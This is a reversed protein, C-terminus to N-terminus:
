AGGGAGATGGNGRAAFYLGLLLLVVQFEMGGMPARESPVFSWQGWHVMFIAGLMVPAIALGALRTTLEGALGRVAGGALIGAGALVELLAVAAALGFPLGMMEAFGGIGGIFKQLGHFLFVSALAARPLWHAHRALAATLPETASHGQQVHTEVTM